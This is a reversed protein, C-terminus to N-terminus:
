NNARIYEMDSELDIERSKLNFLYKPIHNIIYKMSAKFLINQGYLHKLQEDMKIEAVKKSIFFPFCALLSAFGQQDHPPMYFDIISEKEKVTIDSYVGGIFESSSFKSMIEKLCDKSLQDGASIFGYYESDKSVSNFFEPVSGKNKLINVNFSKQKEISKITKEFDKENKGTVVITITPLKQMNKNNTNHKRSM